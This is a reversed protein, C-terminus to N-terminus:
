AREERGGDGSGYTHEHREHREHPARREDPLPDLDRDPDDPDPDDDWDPEWDEEPDEDGARVRTRGPRGGRLAEDRAETRTENRFGTFPGHITTGEIVQMDRGARYSRHGAPTEPAGTRAAARVPPTGPPSGDGRSPGGGTQPTGATRPTGGSPRPGTSAARAAGALAPPEPLGPVHFWADEHTEKAVVAARRYRDPEVFRGGEVVVNRYLWDSVVILLEVDPADTMVRRAPTSDCLRCALDVARGVLGRGDDLVLGANMGVRLRLRRGGGGRGAGGGGGHAANYARLSAHLTAIWRGVILAPPVDPRLAALIGDGRDEQHVTGPEIGVSAYAEGFAEYMAARTLRKEDMGLRGSGVVDGFVVLRHLAGASAGVDAGASAGTSTM